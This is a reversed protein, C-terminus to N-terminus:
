SVRFYTEEMFDWTNNLCPTGKDKEYVMVDLPAYKPKM